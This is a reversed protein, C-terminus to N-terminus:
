ATVAKYGLGRMSVIRFDLEEPLLKRLRAVCADVVSSDQERDEGWVSDLLQQHTFFRGPQSLLAYLLMFDKKPLSLQLDQRTVTLDDRHLVTKGVVQRGERHMRYQELLGEARQVLETMDVPQVMVAQPGTVQGPLPEPLHSATVLLVPLERDFSRLQRVLERTGPGGCILLSFEGSRLLTLAQPGEHSLRTEHGHRRLAQEFLACLKQDRGAILIRCM